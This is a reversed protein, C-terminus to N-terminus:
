SYVLDLGQLDKFAVSTAFSNYAISYMQQMQRTVQFKLAFLHKLFLLNKTIPDFRSDTVRKKPLISAYVETKKKPSAKKM